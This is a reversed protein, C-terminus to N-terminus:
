ALLEKIPFMEDHALPLPQGGNDYELKKSDIGLASFWTHFLHGIDYEETSVFTGEANTAGV